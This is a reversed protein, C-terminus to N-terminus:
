KIRGNENNLTWWAVTGGAIAPILAVFTFIAIILLYVPLFPPDTPYFPGPSRPGSYFQQTNTYYSILIFLNIMLIPVSAALLPAYLGQRFSVDSPRSIFASIAGCFFLLLILVHIFVIMTDLSPHNVGSLPPAWDQRLGEVRYGISIFLHYAFWTIVLTVSGIIISFIPWGKRMSM